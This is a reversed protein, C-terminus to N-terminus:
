YRYNVGLRIRFPPLWGNEVGFDRLDQQGYSTATRLALANLVDVYFDVKHGILPALNLRVQVNLDQVDPLRLDRDDAPDNLNTGPNIGLPAKYLDWTNTVPNFFLRSYPQGSLYRYRAGFALWPTAQYALTGKIEHRHDEPLYGELFVDRAAIDGYLNDVEQHTGTLRSLTYEAHTKFRGERKNLGVTVGQYRRWSQDPTSLDSITQARGNRFSGVRDLETGGRNWIRNTERRDFQNEFKRYILDMSVALGQVLEREGGFVAEWTRPLTLPQRCSTGDPRIGTPGCPSGFTNTTLGGSFTCEQTYAQEAANWRCRRQPQTGVTHRAAELLDVDVYSSLSARVVTRGDQTADWAGALGPIWTTNDVTDGRSNGGAAWAHSLSPILTLGRAPKWSDSLTTISRFHSAETIFWGYRADEYRPDNAFFTTQASPENGNLETVQDGPVSRYQTNTETYYRHKFSLSHEGLLKRQPYWDLATLTQISFLDDRTHQNDNGTWFQRPFLNTVSPIHDCDDPRDQCTGPYVHSFISRFGAQARLVLNDRLLSEWILGSFLRRGLRFRQAEQNVGLEPRMNGETIPFGLNTVSSLKNRSTMQWTIKLTGKHFFKSYPLRDGLLGEPDATRTRGIIHTEDSFFYWLKDRIIPGGVTPALIYYSSAGQGLPGIGTGPADRNDHFFRLQDAEATANFDFETRNSGSKTVLNFMGGPSSPADAGYGATNVEYAASSKLPPYDGNIQNLEFGDQTFLTQNVSGGRMRGNNAGAVENIMQTHVQDRSVMPLAELYELDYVEKVNSTTTSVLPAKEVVKVEEINGTELEMVINLEVASGVGVQLDKGVYTKMKPASSVLEFKGPFLQPLRFFGEADTYSVKAGGIQTPSRASIKVGALPQGAQDYVYGVISGAAGGQALAASPSLLPTGCLSVVLGLWLGRMVAATRM